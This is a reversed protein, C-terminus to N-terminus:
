QSCRTNILQPVIMSLYFFKGIQGYSVPGGDFVVKCDPTCIDKVSEPDAAEAFFELVVEKLDAFLNM